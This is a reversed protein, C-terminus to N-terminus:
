RRPTPPHLSSYRYPDRRPRQCLPETNPTSVPATVFARHWHRALLCLYPPPCEHVASRKFAQDDIILLVTQKPDITLREQARLNECQFLLPDELVAPNIGSMLRFHRIRTIKARAPHSTPGDNEHAAIIVRDADQQIRTCVTSREDTAFLRASGTRELARVMGPGEAGTALQNAHRSFVSVTRGEAAFLQRQPHRRPHVTVTPKDKQIEIGRSFPQQVIQGVRFLVNIQDTVLGRYAHFDHLPRLEVTHARVPLQQHLIADIAVMTQRGM